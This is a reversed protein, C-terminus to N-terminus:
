DNYLADCLEPIIYVEWSTGFSTLGIWLGYDNWLYPIHAKDLKKADFESADPYLAWQFIEPTIPEQCDEPEGDEDDKHIVKTCDSCEGCPTYNNQIDDYSFFDAKLADEVLTTQCVLSDLLRRSLTAEPTDPNTRVHEYSFDYKTTNM